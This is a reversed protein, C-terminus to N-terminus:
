DAELQDGEKLGMSAIIASPITIQSKSRLVTLM